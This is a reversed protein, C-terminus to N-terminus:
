HWLPFPLFSGNEDANAQCDVESLGGGVKREILHYSDVHRFQFVVVSDWLSDWGGVCGDIRVAFGAKAIM